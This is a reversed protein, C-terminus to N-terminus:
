HFIGIVGEPISDAVNRGTACHGVIIGPLGFLTLEQPTESNYMSHPQLSLVALYLTESVTKSASGKQIRVIVM